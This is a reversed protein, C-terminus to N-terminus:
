DPRRPALPYGYRKMGLPCLAAVVLQKAVPMEAMWKKDPRIQLPTGELRIPNGAVTHVEADAAEPEPAVRGLGFTAIEQLEVSPDAVFEEYRQDRLPISADAIGRTLRNSVTWALASRAISHQPMYREEWHVEPRLRKRQWSHAVARPDRVLLLVSLDVIGTAGLLMGHLPFKSSDVIVDAGTVDRVGRYAAAFAAASRDIRSQLAGRRLRARRLGPVATLRNVADVSRQIAAQDFGDPGAAALVQKWFECSNFENGCSCLENDGLGRGFLHRFEGVPVVGPISALALDLVTSGSRGYGGVFLVRPRAETM